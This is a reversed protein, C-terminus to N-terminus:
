VTKGMAAILRMVMARFQREEAATLAAVFEGEYARALPAISNFLDRGKATLSLEVLRRDGENVRNEIFGHGALRAAARSVKSKDM